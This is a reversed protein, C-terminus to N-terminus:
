PILARVLARDQAERDNKPALIAARRECEELTGVYRVLGDVTVAYRNQDLRQLEVGAKRAKM